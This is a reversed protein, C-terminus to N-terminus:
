KMFAVHELSLAEKEDTHYRIFYLAFHHMGFSRLIRQNEKNEPETSELYMIFEEQEPSLVNDADPKLNDKM